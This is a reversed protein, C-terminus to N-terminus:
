VRPAYGNVNDGRVYSNTLVFEQFFRQLWKGSARFLEIESKRLQAVALNQM